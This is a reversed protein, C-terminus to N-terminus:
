GGHGRLADFAALLTEGTVPSGGGVDDATRHLLSGDILFGYRDCVGALDFLRHSSVIITAGRRRREKLTETLWRAMDPDLGEWPEDLVILELGDDGLAAHLGAHQRSGRSLFRMPRPDDGPDAVGLLRAWTRARVAPPLTSEGAFYGVRHRALAELPTADWLRVSGGTPRILAVLIRLLTTKGAGNPGVIGVVEPGTSRLDISRLATMRGYSKRVGELACVVTM